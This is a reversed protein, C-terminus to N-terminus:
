SALQRTDNMNSFADTSLMQMLFAQEAFNFCGVIQQARDRDANLSDAFARLEEMTPPPGNGEYHASASVCFQRQEETMLQGAKIWADPHLEVSKLFLGLTKRVADERMGQSIMKNGEADKPALFYNIAMGSIVSVNALLEKQLREDAEQKKLDLERQHKKDLLEAQDKRMQAEMSRYTRLEDRLETNEQTLSAIRADATSRTYAVADKILDYALKTNKENHRLAQSEGPAVRANGIPDGDVDDAPETYMTFPFKRSPKTMEGFWARLVYTTYSGPPQGNSDDTALQTVKHAIEKVGESHAYENIPFPHMEEKGGYLRIYTCPGEPTGSGTVATLWRRLAAPDLGTSM